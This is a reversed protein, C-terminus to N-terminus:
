APAADELKLSPGWGKDPMLRGAVDVRAGDLRRLADGLPGDAAGFAVAKAARGDPGVLRARLHGHGFTECRDLRVDRMVAVPEEFDPGYPGAAAVAESAASLGAPAVALDCLIPPPTPHAAVRASLFDRLAQVQARRVSLGAAMPHGGGSELLGAAAAEAIAAGLDCGAVSRGSGRGLADPGDGDFGIVVAPRGHREALRSAALGAVGPPWGTGAAILIPADLDLGIEAEACVHAQARRREENREQLASAWRAAEEDHEATLLRLAAEAGGMRGAANIRPGFLFGLDHVDFPARGGAIAALARLGPRAERSMVKLGQVVLARNFGTLPRLDCVTSLAAFDLLALPDLPTNARDGVRRLVALVLLFAVGGASLAGQGSRDGVQNPNVVALSPPRRDSPHHDLVVTELGYAAAAELPEVATAGCDVLVVTAAGQDKLWRFAGANPGYGEAVRDPVYVMPEARFARGLEVLMAASTLGDVDYDAFVAWPRRDRIVEALHDAAATMDALSEPDPTADRLRPKLFSAATEPAVGRAAFIRAVGDAGGIARAVAARLEEDVVRMRWERGTVSERVLVPDLTRTGDCPAGIM